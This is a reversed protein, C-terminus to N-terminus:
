ADSSANDADSRESLDDAEEDHAAEALEDDSGLSTAAGRAAYEVALQSLNPEVPQGCSQLLAVLGPVLPGMSRSILSYAVGEGGQRGTRGIRHCYQELNTPFDYNVVYRLRKM